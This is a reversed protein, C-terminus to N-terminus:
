RRKIEKKMLREVVDQVAQAAKETEKTDSKWGFSFRVLGLADEDSYGM